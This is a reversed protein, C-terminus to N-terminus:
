THKAKLSDNIKDLDRFQKGPDKEHYGTGLVCRPIRSTEGTLLDLFVGVCRTSRTRLGKAPRNECHVAECTTLVVAVRVLPPAMWRVLPKLPEIACTVWAQHNFLHVLLLPMAVLLVPM